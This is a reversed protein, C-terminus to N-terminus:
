ERAASDDLGTPLIFEGDPGAEFDVVRIVADLNLPGYIHPFIQGSAAQEHRIVSNVRDPVICLLVLGIQGRFYRGATSVVQSTTSCHMFGETELTDAHYTGAAKADAWVARTTIHLILGV